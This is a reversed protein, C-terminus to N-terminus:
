KGRLLVIVQLGAFVRRGSCSSKELVATVKGSPVMTEKGGLAFTYKGAPVLDEPRFGM